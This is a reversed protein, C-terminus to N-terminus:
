LPPPGSDDLAAARGPPPSAVNRRAGLDGKEDASPGATEDSDILEQLWSEFAEPVGDGGKSFSYVIVKNKM